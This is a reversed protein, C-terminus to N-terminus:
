KAVAKMGLIPGVIENWQDACEKGCREAWRALIVDNAITDRTKLDAASPEVRKM